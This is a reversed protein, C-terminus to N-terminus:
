ARSCAFALDGLDLGVRDTVARQLLRRRDVVRRQLGLAEGVLHQGLDFAPEAGGEVDLEHEVLPRDALVEEISVSLTGASFSFSGANSM